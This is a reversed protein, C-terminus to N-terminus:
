SMQKWPPRQKLEKMQWVALEFETITDLGNYMLLQPLSVESIIQNTSYDETGKLLPKIHSSYPPFGLKTFAQFDLSKTGKRNDLVHACLMTDWVWNRVRTDFVRMSWRQEHKINAGIKPIPSRLFRKLYPIVSPTIPFAICREAKSKGWTISCSVCIAREGDPKLCNSEYDITTMGQYDEMEELIPIPDDPTEVLSRYDPVKKWPRETHKFAKALHKEFLLRLVKDGSERNVYSPHWTPCVWTNLSQLPIQEGVWKGLPGYDLTWYPNLVQKLSADGLTIITHPKYTSLTEVFHARCHDLEETTPTRNHRPRCIIANSKWCDEDLDIDIDKLVSRLLQGAKGVLQIGREDETKGPAEAIVLVGLGGEGTPKMKPTICDKYLRCLECRAALNSPKRGMALMESKHFFGRM